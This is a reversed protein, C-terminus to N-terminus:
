PPVVSRRDSPAPPPGAELRQRLGRVVEQAEGRLRREVIQRAIGGFLGGLVDVRSRNLYVLYRPAGDASGTIATVALSGTMYHTAFIQKAAVMAQPSGPDSRRLIHVHTVTVVPKGGLTEMSWYLFSEVAPDVRHPYHLLQDTLDPLRQTLFASREVLATLERDPVVPTSRDRYPPAASLGEALYGTVRALVLTRFARQLAAKWDARAAEAARRLGVIEEDSLKVGCDGPRCRRIDGLDGDGLTLGDLDSQAPPTSFRGIARVYPGRKLDEIRRVWSVLRDGDIGVRAASAIAIERDAAPVVKVLAEGAELKEREARSWTVTPVFFAFPDPRQADPTVAWTAFLAFLV